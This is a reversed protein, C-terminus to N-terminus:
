KLLDRYIGPDSKDILVADVVRKYFDVPGVGGIIAYSYGEAKMAYLAELLLAKGIGRGQYTDLVGTPGFFNVATTHYCAFGVLQQGHYAVFITAPTKGFAARCESEWLSGFHEGVWSSVNELEPAIARKICVEGDTWKGVPYDPLDYLRVLMDQM